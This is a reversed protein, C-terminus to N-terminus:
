ITKINVKKSDHLLRNSDKKPIIKTILRNKLIIQNGPTRLWNHSHQPHTLKISPTKHMRENLLDCKFPYMDSMFWNTYM